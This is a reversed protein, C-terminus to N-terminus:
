LKFGSSGKQHRTMEEEAEKAQSKPPSISPRPDAEYWHSARAHWERRWEEWPIDLALGRYRDYKAKEKLDSLVHYAENIRQMEDSNSNKTDPHYKLALQHYEKTIQAATSWPTVGLVTYFGCPDKFEM